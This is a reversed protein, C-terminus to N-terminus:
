LGLTIAIATSSAELFTICARHVELSETRLKDDPRPFAAVQALYDLGCSGMGVVKPGSGPPGAGQGQWAACAVM